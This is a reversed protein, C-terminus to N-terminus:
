TSRERLAMVNDVFVRTEALPGHKRVSAPGQYWAALAARPKRFERLLQRLLVVGVRINGSPTRPVKGGLLVTEVYSWASPLIQMVGWAGASSTLDTQYGSEMWALARVLAPDVGYRNAWYDIMGRVTAAPTRCVGVAAQTKRGVLLAAFTRRGAVGDVVLGHARQFRRVARETRVGFYGNVALVAGRQALLFQVVSVDWGLDGRRVARAGLGPRGLPGLAHRTAPGIRGDVDLGAHRQFRRLSRATAPGYVADIPGLYLGQARLAVQLGAIRPRGAHAAPVAALIGLVALLCIVRKL